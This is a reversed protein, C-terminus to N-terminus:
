DATRNKKFKVINNKVTLLKKKEPQEMIERKAVQEKIFETAEWMDKLISIFILFKLEIRLVMQKGRLKTQEAKDRTVSTKKLHRAILLPQNINIFSPSPQNIWFIGRHLVEETTTYATRGGGGGLGRDSIAPKEKLYELCLVLSCTPFGWIALNLPLLFRGQCQFM